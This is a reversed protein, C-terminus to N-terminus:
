FSPSKLGIGKEMAQLVDQDDMRLDDAIQSYGQRTSLDPKKHAIYILVLKDRHNLRDHDLICDLTQDDM